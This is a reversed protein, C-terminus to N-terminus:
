ETSRHPRISPCPLLRCATQGPGSSRLARAQVQRVPTACEQGRVRAAWKCGALGVAPNKMPHGTHLPLPRSGNSCTVLPDVRVSPARTQRSEAAPTPVTSIMRRDPVDFVQTHRQCSRKASAPHWGTPQPRLRHPHDLHWPAYGLSAHGWAPRFGCGSKGTLNSGSPHIEAAGLERFV